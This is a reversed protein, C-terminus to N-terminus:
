SVALTLGSELVTTGSGNIEGKEGVTCTTENEGIAKSFEGLVGSGSNTLKATVLGECLTEVKGLPGTCVVEYGSKEVDDLFTEGDLVITSTWVTGLSLSLNDVTVEALSGNTCGGANVVTCNFIVSGEALENVVEGAPNLVDTVTDTSGLVTGVLTGGTCDVETKVGFLTNSLTLLGTTLTEKATTIAAGDELWEDAAFASSVSVACFAFVACLAVGLKLKSMIARVKGEELGTLRM